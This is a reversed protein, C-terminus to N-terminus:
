PQWGSVDFWFYGQMNTTANTLGTDASGWIGYANASTLYAVCFHTSDFLYTSGQKGAAAGCNGSMMGELWNTRCATGDTGTYVGPFTTLATLGGPLTIEINGVGNSGAGTQNYKFRIQARSGVRRWQISDSTLTGKTFTGSTSATFTMTTTTSWDTETRHDRILWNTGDSILELTEGNTYLAYSGSAIGGITQANLTALTYVQTISTGNHILQLVVGRNLAADPLTEIFSAGSLVVTRDRLLMLDTAIVSRIVSTPNTRYYSEIQELNSSANNFAWGVCRWTQSPHYYGFLDARNQPKKDSIKVDGTETIYFYYYTSAGEVVGSELNLTMDWVPINRDFKITTGNVNINGGPFRAKTQSNSEAFLEITNTSDYNSFFEYSRAAVTNTADQICIGVLVANAASFSGVSYKKWTNASIDYWYDGIAPSTPETDAWVPNNYTATLTGDTQAFVWTLKMLTIVANDSYTVAPIPADSSDFFHGRRAKSLATSSKVYALFYEAGLKFAAFKGVLASIESGVTDIPIESGDEGAYKTWYQASATSDNIQCTNNTSPAATLGTLSVDTSITYETGDIYYIFNTPTGDLKVTKAAGNPVLFAPQASTSLVRGSVLRNNTLGTGVANSLGALSAIPSEYWQNKGTIEKLTFRIRKIEEALTTALSETGVEGPDTTAQMQSVNASYADIYAPMAHDIINDFEANLDTNTVDETSSWTKLRPYLSM